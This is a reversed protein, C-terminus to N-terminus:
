DIAEATALQLCDDGRLVHSLIFATLGYITTIRLQSYIHKLFTGIGARVPHPLLCFILWLWPKFRPGVNQDMM